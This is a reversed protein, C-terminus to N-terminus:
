RSGYAEEIDSKCWDALHIWGITGEASLVKCHEQKQELLVFLSSPPIYSAKCPISWYRTCTETVASIAIDIEDESSRYLLWYFEKTKYLKGVEMPKKLIM